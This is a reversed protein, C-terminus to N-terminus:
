APIEEMGIRDLDRAERRRRLWAGLVEDEQGLMYDRRWATRLRGDGSEPDDREEGLGHAMRDMLDRVTLGEGLRRTFRDVATRTASEMLMDIRPLLRAILKTAHYRWARQIKKEESLLPLRMRRRFTDTVEPTTRLYRLPRCIKIETSFGERTKNSDSEKELLAARGRLMETSPRYSRLSAKTGFDLQAVSWAYLRGGLEILIGENILARLEVAIHTRHMGCAALTKPDGIVTGDSQTFALLADLIKQRRTPPRGARDRKGGHTFTTPKSEEEVHQKMEGEWTFYAAARM